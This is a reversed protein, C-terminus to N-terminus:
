VRSLSVGPPVRACVCVSMCRPVSVHVCVSADVWMQVCVQIRVYSRVRVCRCM